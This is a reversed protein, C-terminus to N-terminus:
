RSPLSKMAGTVGLDSSELHMQHWRGLISTRVGGVLQFCQRKRVPVEIVEPPDGPFQIGVHRCRYTEGVQDARDEITYLLASDVEGIGATFFVDGTQGCSSQAL